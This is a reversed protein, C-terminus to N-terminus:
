LNAEDIAASGSPGDACRSCPVIAARKIASKGRWALELIGDRPRQQVSTVHGFEPGAYTHISNEYDDHRGGLPEYCATLRWRLDVGSM